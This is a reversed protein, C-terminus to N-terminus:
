PMKGFSFNIFFIINNPCELEKTSKYNKRKSFGFPSEKVYFM